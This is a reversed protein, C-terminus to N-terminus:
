PLIDDFDMSPPLSDSGNGGAVEQGKKFGGMDLQLEKNGGGSKRRHLADAGGGGGGQPPEEYTFAENVFYAQKAQGEM